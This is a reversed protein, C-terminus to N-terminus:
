AEAPEGAMADAIRRAAKEGARQKFLLGEKAAGRVTVRSGSATASITVMVVTPNMNFSGSGIIGVVRVHDENPQRLLRSNSGLVQRARAEVEDPPLDLSLEIQLVNKERLFRAGREAGRGYAGGVANVLLADEYADLEPGVEHGV